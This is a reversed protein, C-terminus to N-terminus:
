DNVVTSRWHTETEFVDVHASPETTTPRVTHHHQTIRDEFAIREASIASILEATATRSRLAEPRNTATVHDRSAPDARVVEVSQHLDSMKPDSLDEREAAPVKPASLDERQAATKAVTQAVRAAHGRKVGRGNEIEDELVELSRDSRQVVLRLVALELLIQEHYDASRVDRPTSARNPSLSRRTSRRSPTEHGTM